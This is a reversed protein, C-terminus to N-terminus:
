PVRDAFSNLSFNATGLGLVGRGQFGAHGGQLSKKPVSEGLDRQFLEYCVRLILCLVFRASGLSPLSARLWANLNTAAFQVYYLSCRACIVSSVGYM